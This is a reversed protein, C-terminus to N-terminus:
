PVTMGNYLALTTAVGHDNRFFLLQVADENLFALELLWSCQVIFSDVKSVLMDGAVRIGCCMAFPSSMQLQM